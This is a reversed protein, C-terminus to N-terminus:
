QIKIDFGILGIRGLKLYIRDYESLNNLPGVSITYSKDKYDKFILNKNNIKHTLVQYLQNAYIKKYFPGFNLYIKDKIKKEDSLNMVNIKELSVKKDVKKEEEFIKIKKAIFIKNKRFSQIHILPLNEDLKLNESINKPLVIIRSGLNKSKDNTTIVMSQKNKINTIKLTTGIPFISTVKNNNQIKAFGKKEYIGHNSTCSYFILFFFIFKKKFM